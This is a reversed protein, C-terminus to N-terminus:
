ASTIHGVNRGRLTIAFGRQGVPAIGGPSGKLGESGSVCTNYIALARRWADKVEWTDVVDPKEIDIVVKCTSHSWTLPTRREITPKKSASPPKYTIHAYTRPIDFYPDQTMMWLATYCDPPFPILIQSSAPFCDVYAMTTLNPAAFAVSLTCLAIVTPQLLRALAPYM